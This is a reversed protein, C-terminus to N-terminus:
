RKGISMPMLKQGLEDEGCPHPPQTMDNARQDPVPGDLSAGAAPMLKRMLHQYKRIHKQCVQGALAAAPSSNIVVSLLAPAMDPAPAPIRSRSCVIALAPKLRQSTGGAASQM